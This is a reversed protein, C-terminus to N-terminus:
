DQAFAWIAVTVGRAGAQLASAGWASGLRHHGIGVVVINVVVGATFPNGRRFRRGGQFPGRAVDVEVPNARVFGGVFVARRLFGGVLEELGRGKQM